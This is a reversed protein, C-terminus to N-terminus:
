GEVRWLTFPIARDTGAIKKITWDWGNGLMYGGTSPIIANPKGPVGEIYWSEVLRKTGASPLATEYLQLLFQDGAIVANLDLVVAYVGKETKTALTTSENALSYETSGITPSAESYIVQGM